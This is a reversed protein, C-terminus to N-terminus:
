VHNGFLKVQNINESTFFTFDFSYSFLFLYFTHSQTTTTPTERNFIINTLNTVFFFHITSELHSNHLQRSNKFSKSSPQTFRFYLKQNTPLIKATPNTHYKIRCIPSSQSMLCELRKKDIYYISFAYIM